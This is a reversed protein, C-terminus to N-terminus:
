KKTPEIVSLGMSVQGYAQRGTIWAIAERIAGYLVSHAVIALGASRARDDADSDVTFFGICEMDITYPYDTSGDINLKSTMTAVYRNADGEVPEVNISNEPGCLEKNEPEKHGQISIVISRTFITRDLHIPFDIGAM